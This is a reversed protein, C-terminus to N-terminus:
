LTRNRRKRIRYLIFAWYISYFFISCLGFIGATPVITYIFISPLITVMPGLQVYVLTRDLADQPNFMGCAWRVLRPFTDRRFEHLDRGWYQFVFGLVWHGLASAVFSIL